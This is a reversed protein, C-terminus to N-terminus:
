GKYDIIKMHKWDIDALKVGKQGESNKDVNLVVYDQWGSQVGNEDFIPQPTITLSLSQWDDRVGKGDQSKIVYNGTKADKGAEKTIQSVSIILLSLFDRTPELQQKIYFMVDNIDTKNRFVDLAHELQIYDIVWAMAQDQYKEVFKRAYYINGDTGYPHEMVFVDGTTSQVVKALRTMEKVISPDLPKGNGGFRIGRAKEEKDIIHARFKDVNFEGTKDQRQLERVALKYAKWERTSTLVHGNQLLPPVILSEVLISKAGGSMGVVNFVSGRDLAYAQGGFERICEIPQLIPRVMPLDDNQMQFLVDDFAAKRSFVVDELPPMDAPLTDPIGSTRMGANLPKYEPKVPTPAIRNNVPGLRVAQAFRNKAKEKPDDIPPGAQGSALGSRITAIAEHETFDGQGIPAVRMLIDWAQAETYTSWQTAILRGLRFAAENLNANRSQGEIGSAVHGLAWAIVREQEAAYLKADDESTGAPLPKREMPGRDEWAEDPHPPLAELQSLKLWRGGSDMLTHFRLVDDQRTGYFIRAVDRCKADAVGFSQILRRAYRVYLKPDTIPEDLLFLVRTRPAEPTSKPTAYVVLAHDHVLKNERVLREPNFGGSDLDVGMVQASKFNTQHRYNKTLASVCIAGGNQVHSVIEAPTLPSSQFHTWAEKESVGPKLNKEDWLKSIGLEILRDAM